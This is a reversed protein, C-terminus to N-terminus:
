YSGMLGRKTAIAYTAQYQPRNAHPSRRFLMGLGDPMLGCYHASGNVSLIMLAANVVDDIPCLMDAATRPPREPTIYRGMEGIKTVPDTTVFSLLEFRGYIMGPILANGTKRPVDHCEILAPDILAVDVTAERFVPVTRGANAVLYPLAGPHDPATRDGTALPTTEDVMEIAFRRHVCTGRAEAIARCSRQPCPLPYDDALGWLGVKASYPCFREIAEVLTEVQYTGCKDLEGTLRALWEDHQAIPTPETLMQDPSVRM